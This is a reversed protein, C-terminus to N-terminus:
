RHVARGPDALAAVRPQLTVLVGHRPRLTLLPQPEVPHEPVLHLRYAQAVMAVILRAELLAFSEGLCRRSGGGFPFYAYRPRDTSQAPTFREPDFDAPREWFTPHRHLVYPSLLVVAHRSIHYSGIEDDALPSRATVWTPPYLRLAEEIVMRTYTLNQLDQPTPTRGGLVATLEAQLRRQVDPHKALLYWTWALTAATTEHGAVFLTMVEDRLQLDSMAKGTEAHRTHLLLSLLDGMDQQCRRRAAIMRYVVANLTRLAQRFRRNQPTPLWQPLDIFAWLRRNISEQVTTLAQRVTEAEGGLDTGFLTKSIIRQTLHLMEAAIDFPQGSTAVPRWRELAAATTETMVAALAAIQGHHFAPQLLRRQRRWLEGESTTLGTGFLPKIRDISTGKRYNLHNDQLVYKIYDPHNLLYVRHSGLDLAVVDGYQRAAELFFQLPNQWAQPLVGLLPYGHPGPAAKHTRPSPFRAM